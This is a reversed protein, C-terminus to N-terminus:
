FCRCNFWCKYVDFQGRERERERYTGEKRMGMEACKQLRCYQCRNRTHKEIACARNGRCAYRAGARISRRFFSKCAECSLVGFHNGSAIDDCVKCLTQGMGPARPSMGLPSNSTEATQPHNSYCFNPGSIAGYPTDCFASGFMADDRGYPVGGCIPDIDKVFQKGAPQYGYQPPPQSWYGGQQDACPYTPSAEPLLQLLPEEPKVSFEAQDLVSELTDFQSSPSGHSASAYGSSAGTPSGGYSTYSVNDVVGPSQGTPQAHPNVPVQASQGVCSIVSYCM